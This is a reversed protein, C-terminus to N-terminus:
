LLKQRVTATKRHSIRSMELAYRTDSNRAAAPSAELRPKEGSQNATTPLYPTLRLEGWDSVPLLYSAEEKGSYSPPM